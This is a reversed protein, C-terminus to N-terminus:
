VRISQLNILNRIFPIASTHIRTLCSISQFHLEIDKGVTKDFQFGKMHVTRFYIHWISVFAGPM